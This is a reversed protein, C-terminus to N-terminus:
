SCSGTFVITGFDFQNTPTPTDTDNGRPDGDTGISRFTIPNGTINNTNRASVRFYYTPALNIGNITLSTGSTTSASSWSVNSISTIGDDIAYEIIYQYITAGQGASTPVDWTLEVNETPRYSGSASENPNSTDSDQGTARLNRPATPSLVAPAASPSADSALGIGVSNIAYVRFIYSTGNVLGDIARITNPDKNLPLGNGDLQDFYIWNQGIDSSYEIIYATIPKGGDNTPADWNLLVGQNRASVTLNVAPDPSTPNPPPILSVIQGLSNITLPYNPAYIKQQLSQDYTVPGNTVPGLVIDHTILGSTYTIGNISLDAYNTLDNQGSVLVGTSSIELGYEKELTLTEASSSGPLIVGYKVGTISAIKYPEVMNITIKPSLDPHVGTAISSSRTRLFVGSEISGKVSNDIYSHVRFAPILGSPIGNADLSFWEPEYRTFLTKRCGYVVFDIDEATKNFATHVEPRISLTNATSPKFRYESTEDLADCTFGETADQAFSMDLYAGKQVSFAYGILRGNNENDSGLDLQSASSFAEPIPPCVNLILSDKNTENAFLGKNLDGRGDVLAVTSVKVYFVEREQNVLAITENYAFEKEIDELSVGDTGGQDASIDVFQISTSSIFEFARSSYRTWSAGPAKLATNPQWTAPAQGNHTLISGAYGDLPPGILIRSTYLVPSLVGTETSYLSVVKSGMSDTSPPNFGVRFWNSSSLAANDNNHIIENSNTSVLQPYYGTSIIGNNSTELAAVILKDSTVVKNSNLEKFAFGGNPGPILGGVQVNGSSDIYELGGTASIKIGGTIPQNSNLSASSLGSALYIDGYFYSGYPSVKIANIPNIKNILLTNGNTALIIGTDSIITSLSGLTDDVVTNSGVQIQDTYLHGSISLSSLVGSQYEFPESRRITVAPVLQERTKGLPKYYAAKHWENLSPLWYDQDRNKTISLENGVISYSGFETAASNFTIGSPAGNTIWNIFRIASLYTIFTAPMNAMGNKAYYVYPSGAIGNGSRAIGGANDTTMESAYLNNPYSGTAASNLFKIYQNNTVEYTSINYPYSVVGLNTVTIETPEAKLGFRNNYTETYIPSTDAPNDIDDVRVFSLNLLGDIISDNFGAKSCIRFGVDDFTSQRPTPVYGRLGFSSSTRWSGGCVYQNPAASSEGENDEVWEYVNGNQDFTGYYSPRGNAGFATVRNPWIGTDAAENFNASNNSNNNSAGFGNSNIKATFPEIDTGDSSRLQTAYKFYTGENKTEISANAIVNLAPSNELGYVTFNIDKKLSNFVTDVGPRTSITVDTADSVIGSSYVRNTLIGGKTVSYTRLVGSLTVDQDVTFGIISDESINLRAIRRYTTINTTLNLIAVQDSIDYENLPAPELLSIERTATNVCCIDAVRYPYRTWTLDRGGINTGTEYPWYTDISKAAVVTGDELTTLIKQKGDAVIGPIQFGTAPVINKSSDVSLLVNTQNAYPIRIANNAVVIGTLNIFSSSSGAGIGISGNNLNIATNNVQLKAGTNTINLLGTGNVITTQDADTSIITTQAGNNDVDINIQGKAVDKAIGKIRAFDKKLGSNKGSLTIQAITTGSPTTTTNTPNQYLTIDAPYCSTLTELRLGERCLTNVIHFVTAPKVIGGIGSPMNIGLRGDYSFYLNKSPYGPANGTGYVIFNSGKKTQNFVIPYNGSSPIVHTALTRDDSNFLLEKTNPQWFIQSGAFNAGDKYQFSYDSGTPDSLASFDASQVSMSVVDKEINDKLEIWSGGISVIKTYRDNGSLVILFNNKDTIKLSGQGVTRFEIELNEVDKPGILKATIDTTNEFNVIYVTKKNEVTFNSNQISVNNFATNFNATNVFLYFEKIGDINFDIKTNNTNSSEIVKRSVIKILGNEYVIQATGVEFVIEKNNGINRALYPITSGSYKSHLTAYGHLAGLIIIDNNDVKFSCGINDYINM